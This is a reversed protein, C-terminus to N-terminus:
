ITRSARWVRIVGTTGLIVFAAGLLLMWVRSEYIGVGGFVLGLVINFMEISFINISKALKAGERAAGESEKILSDLKEAENACEGPCAIGNTVEIACERCIGRSCSKCIGVASVGRHHYCEM